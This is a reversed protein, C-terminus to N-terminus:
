PGQPFGSTEFTGGQWHQFGVQSFEREMGEAWLLTPLGMDRCWAPSLFQTCTPTPPQSEGGVGGVGVKGSQM